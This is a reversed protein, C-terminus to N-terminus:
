QVISESVSPDVQSQSRRSLPPIPALNQETTKDIDRFESFKKFINDVTLIQKM